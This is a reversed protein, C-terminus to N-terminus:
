CKAAKGAYLLTNKHLMAFTDPYNYSVADSRNQINDKKM